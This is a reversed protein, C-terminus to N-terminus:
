EQTNTKSKQLLLLHPVKEFAKKFDMIIAHTTHPTTHLVNDLIENLHHLLLLLLIHEIM